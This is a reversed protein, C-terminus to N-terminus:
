PAIRQMADPRSGTEHRRMPIPNPTAKARRAASISQVPLASVKAVHAIYANTDNENPPAWKSIVGSLTNVGKKGYSALNKDMAALGEEMSGYEALKGGPMLAGPNNTRIPAPTTPAATPAPAPRSKVKTGFADGVASDIQSPDFLEVAM